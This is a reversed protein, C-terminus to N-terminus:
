PELGPSTPLDVVLALAEERLSLGLALLVLLSVVLSFFPGLMDILDRSLLVNLCELYSRVEVRILGCCGVLNSLLLFPLLDLLLILLRELLLLIRLRFLLVVTVQIVSDLQLM